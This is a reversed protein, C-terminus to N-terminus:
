TLMSYRVSSEDKQGDEAQLLSNGPRALMKALPLDGYELIKYIFKMKMLM